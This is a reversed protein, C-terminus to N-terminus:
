CLSFCLFVAGQAVTLGPCGGAQTLVEQPLKEYFRLAPLSRSLDFLGSFGPRLFESECFLIISLAVTM